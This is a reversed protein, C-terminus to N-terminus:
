PKLAVGINGGKAGAPVWVSDKDKTDNLGNKSMETRLREPDSMKSIKEKLASNESELKTIQKEVEHIRTNIQYIQAYRWVITGAVVVCLLVTFLYLLKEQVPLRSAKYVVKRTEKIKVRPAHAQREEVALNGHVYSAM